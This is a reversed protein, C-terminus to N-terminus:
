DDLLDKEIKRNLKKVLEAAKSKRDVNDQQRKRRKQKLEVKEKFDDKQKKM